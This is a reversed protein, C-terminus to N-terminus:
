KIDLMKHIQPLFRIDSIHKKFASIKNLITESNWLNKIEDIDDLILPQLFIILQNDIEALKKSIEEIEEIPTEHTIVCKIWLMITQNIFLDLSKLEEEIFDEVGWVSPIKIDLSVEDPFVRIDKLNKYPIGSTELCLCYQKSKLISITDNLFESQLLPEGGTLVVRSYEPFLSKVIRAIEEPNVPNNRIESKEKFSHLKYTDPREEWSNKTDCFESRLECGTLRIFITPTGARLGEGDISLFIESLFGEKM